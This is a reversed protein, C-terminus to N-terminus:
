ARQGRRGIIPGVERDAGDHNLRWSPRASMEHHPASNTHLHMFPEACTALRHRRKRSCDGFASTRQEPTSSAHPKRATPSTRSPQAGPSSSSAPCQKTLGVATPPWPRRSSPPVSTGTCGLSTSRRITIAADSWDIVGSLDGRYELIHEAGLDAHALVRYPSPEPVTTRVVHLLEVPGELDALWEDPNADETPVLGSVNAVDIAHLRRLFDGLVAAAGPPPIRGLLPSGPLLPYALVGAEEDAFGPMPVPIPLHPGVLGL